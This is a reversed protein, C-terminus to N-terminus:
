ESMKTQENISLIRLAQNHAATHVKVLNFGLLKFCGYEFIIGMSTMIVQWIKSMKMEEEMYNYLLWGFYPMVGAVIIVPIVIMYNCAKFAEKIDVNDRRVQYNYNCVKCKYPSSSKELGNATQQGINAGLANITSNSRYQQVPTGPTTNPLYNHSSQRSHGIMTPHNMHLSNPPLGGTIAHGIAGHANNSHAAMALAFQRDFAEPPLINGISGGPTTSSLAAARVRERNRYASELREIRHQERSYFELARNNENDQSNKLIFQKLCEHHVYELDGKCLCPRIFPSSTSLPCVNEMCIYCKKEDKGTDVTSNDSQKLRKNERNAAVPDLSHANMNAGGPKLYKWWKNASPSEQGRTNDYDSGTERLEIQNKNQNSASFHGVWRVFTNKSSRSKQDPKELRSVSFLVRPNLLWLQEPKTAYFLCSPIWLLAGFELIRCCVTYTSYGEIHVTGLWQLKMINSAIFLSLILTMVGESYLGIQSSVLQFKNTVLNHKIMRASEKTQNLNTTTNLCPSVSGLSQNRQVKKLPAPLDKPRPKKVQLPIASALNDKSMPLSTALNLEPTSSSISNSLSTTEPNPSSPVKKTSKSMFTNLSNESSWLNKSLRTEKRANTIFQKNVAINTGSDERNDGKQQEGTALTEELKKTKDEIMNENLFAGQNKVYVETGITLFVVHVVFMLIATGIQFVLNILELIAVLVNAPNGSVSDNALLNSKQLTFSQNEQEEQEILFLKVQETKLYGEEYDKKGAELFGIFIRFLLQSFMFLYLASNFIVFAISSKRLFVGTMKKNEIINSFEQSFYLESWYCIILSMCTIFMAYFFNLLPPEKEFSFQHNNFTISKKEKLFTNIENSANLNKDFFDLFKYNGRDVTNVEHDILANKLKYFDYIRFLCALCVFGYLVKMTSVHTFIKWKSTVITSLDLDVTAPPRNIPASSAISDEDHFRAGATLGLGFSKNNNRQRESRQRNRKETEKELKYRNVKQKVVQGGVNTFFLIVCVAVLCWYLAGL